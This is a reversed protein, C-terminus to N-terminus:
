IGLIPVEESSSNRPLVKIYIIDVYRWRNGSRMLLISFQLQLDAYYLEFNEMGVTIGHTKDQYLRKYTFEGDVADEVVFSADQAMRLCKQFNMKQANIWHSESGASGKDIQKAIFPFLEILKNLERIGVWHPRIRQFQKEQIARAYLKALDEPSSVEPSCALVSWLLGIVLLWRGWSVSRYICFSPM